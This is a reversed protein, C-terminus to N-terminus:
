SAQDGDHFRRTESSARWAVCSYASPALSRRTSLTDPHELGLVRELDPVLTACQDRAVLWQGVAAAAAARAARATLAAGDDARDM